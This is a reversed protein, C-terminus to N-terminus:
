QYGMRKVVDKAWDQGFNVRGYVWLAGLTPPCYMIPHTKEVLYDMLGTETAPAFVVAVADNPRDKQERKLVRERIDGADLNVRVWGVLDPKDVLAEQDVVVGGFLFEDQNYEDPRILVEDEIEDVQHEVVDTNTFLPQGGPPYLRGPYQNTKIGRVTLTLKNDSTITPTCIGLSKRPVSIGQSRYLEIIDPNRLASTYPYFSQGAKLYLRNRGYSLDREIETLSVTPGPWQIAATEGYLADLPSESKDKHYPRIESFIGAVRLEKQKALLQGHWDKKIREDLEDPKQLPIDIFNVDRGNVPTEFLTEVSWTRIEM